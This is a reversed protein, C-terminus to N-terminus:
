GLVGTAPPVSQSTVQSPNVPRPPLSAPPNQLLSRYRRASGLQRHMDVRPKGEEKMKLPCQPNFVPVESQAVM